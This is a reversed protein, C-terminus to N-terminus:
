LLGSVEQALLLACVMWFLSPKAKMKEYLGHGYRRTVKLEINIGEDDLCISGKKWCQCIHRLTETDNGFVFSGRHEVPLYVIIENCIAKETESFLLSNALCTALSKEIFFQWPKSLNRKTNMFAHAFERLIYFCSITDVVEYSEAHPLLLNINSALNSIREPCIFMSPLFHQIKIPWQFSPDKFKPTTFLAVKDFINNNCNNKSGSIMDWFFELDSIDGANATLYVNIQELDLHCRNESNKLYDLTEENVLHIPTTRWTHSLFGMRNRFKEYFTEPLPHRANVNIIEFVDSM